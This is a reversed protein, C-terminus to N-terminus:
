RDREGEDDKLMMASPPFCLSLTGAERDLWYRKTRGNGRVADDFHRYLSNRM